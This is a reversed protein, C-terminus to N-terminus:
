QSEEIYAIVKSVEDDTLSNPPMSITFGEVQRAGPDVISERVYAADAVLTSGDTFTRESGLLGEWTPGIPASGQHCSACGRESVIEFGEAAAPSLDTPAASSGGCAVAPPFALVGVALARARRVPTM